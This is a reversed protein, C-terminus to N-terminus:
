ESRASALSNSGDLREVDFGRTTFWKTVSEGGWDEFLVFQVKSLAPGLGQVAKLEAGELDLKLLRVTRVDALVGALTVAEVEVAGDACLSAQGYKGPIVSATLIEDPNETLAAEIVRVNTCENQRIHARLIEATDPMMEVAFVRGGPGVIKSALVTYFGINAGGDIFCDGPRLLRKIAGFVARERTPLVHYLDDSNARVHFSGVGRSTVQCDQPVTPDRWVSLNKLSSFPASLYASRLARRDAATQGFIYKNVDRWIRLRRAYARTAALPRRVFGPLMDKFRM